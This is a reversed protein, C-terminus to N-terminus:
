YKSYWHGLNDMYMFIHLKTKCFQKTLQWRRSLFHCLIIVFHNIIIYAFSYSCRTLSCWLVYSRDVWANSVLRAVWVAFDRVSSCIWLLIDILMKGPLASTYLMNQKNRMWLRSILLIGRWDFSPNKKLWTLKWLINRFHHINM